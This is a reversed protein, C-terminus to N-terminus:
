FDKLIAKYNLTDDAFFYNDVNFTNLNIDDLLVKVKTLTDAVKAQKSNEAYFTVADKLITQYNKIPKLKGNDIELISCLLSKYLSYYGIIGCLKKSLEDLLIFRHTHAKNRLAEGLASNQFIWVKKSAIDYELGLFKCASKYEESYKSNIYKKRDELMAKIDEITLFWGDKNIEGIKDNFTSIFTKLIDLVRNYTEMDYGIITKM